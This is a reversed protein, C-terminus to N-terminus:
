AGLKRALDELSSAAVDVLVKPATEGKGPEPALNIALPKQKVLSSIKQCGGHKSDVLSEPM